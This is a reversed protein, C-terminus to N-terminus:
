LGRLLFFRALSNFIYSLINLAIALYIPSLDIMGFQLRPLFRMMWEYIPETVSIIFRVVPNDRSVPFFSLLFYAMFVYFYANVAWALFTFAFSLM